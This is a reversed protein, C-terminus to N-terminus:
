SLGRAAGPLAARLVRPARRQPDQSLGSAHQLHEAEGRRTPRGGGGGARVAREPLVPAGPGASRGRRDPSSRPHAIRRQPRARVPRRRVGPQGGARGALLDGLPLDHAPRPYQRVAGGNADPIVAVVEVEFIADPNALSPVVVGTSAPYPPSFYDTRVDMLAKRWDPHTSYTNIKVVDQMSAGAAELAHRVNEHCQRAQALPDGAGVLVGSGAAGDGPVYACQGAVFVLNGARVVQSYQPPKHLRPPDVHALPRERAADAAVAVVEIEFRAEPKFLSTVVLGTSAPYPPAFFESRVEALAGRWAPHTAYTNIKLVDQMRGGAAELAWQVNQYCQRAQAYSDAPGLITPSRTAATPDADPPITACQGAVFILDVPASRKRTFRHGTSRRRISTNGCWGWGGGIRSDANPLNGRLQLLTARWGAYCGSPGPALM